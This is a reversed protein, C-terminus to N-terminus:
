FQQFVMGMKERMRRLHSEGAPKLSGDGSKEHWLTDGDVYVVGGSIPEL